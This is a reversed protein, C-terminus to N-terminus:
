KKRKYLSTLLFEFAGTPMGSVDDIMKSAEEYTNHEFKLFKDKLGLKTYVEKVKDSNAKNKIGYNENLIAMDAPTAVKLAEVILWTCTNEEIDTGVKGTVEPDGFADLFDDQAQFFHGIKLCIQKATDYCKQDSVEALRMGLAVPLYFTYHSTKYKYIRALADDTFRDLQVKNAESSTLDLLQGIETTCTIDQFLHVLDIYVPSDRFHKRLLRYIMSELVLSDNIANLGVQPLRFFCPQGRRTVSADMIDDAVLFFAQLLEVCWGLIYAAREEHPKTADGKRFAKYCHSVALGRNLKGHPVNYELNHRIYKLADEPLDFQDGLEAMIEDVLEPFTAKFNAKLDSTASAGSPSAVDTSGM